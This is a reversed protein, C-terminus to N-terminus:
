AEFRRWGARREPLPHDPNHLAAMRFADAGYRAALRDLVARLAARNESASGEGDPWLGTDFLTLQQAPGDRIDGLTLVIEAAPQEDWVLGDLAAALGLRIAAASATPQPFIFAPVVRWGRPAALRV